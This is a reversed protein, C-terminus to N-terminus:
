FLKVVEDKIREALKKHSELTLHLGDPGTELDNTPVFPCNYKSAIQKYIEDFQESKRGAGMYKEPEVGLSAHENVLPPCVIILKPGAEKFQSKRYLITKVFYEEFLKGIDEATRNYIPKLENSGLMIVVLDLPDHSDLCPILYELGNKGEKGPRPDDSILTRSNLGEEIVEFKDGLLSELVKPWRENEGYREHDSGSIYGWTNSDGYCMVRIKDM